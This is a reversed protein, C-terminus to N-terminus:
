SGADRVHRRAARIPMNAVLALTDGDRNLSIDMATEDIEVYKSIVRVLEQQLAALSESRLVGRDHMLVLQLRQKAVNKSDRRGLLKALFSM